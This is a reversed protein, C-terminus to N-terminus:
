PGTFYVKAERVVAKWGNRNGAKAKWIVKLIMFRDSGQDAEEGEVIFKPM